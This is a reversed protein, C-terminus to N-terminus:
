GFLVFFLPMLLAVCVILPIWVSPRLGEASDNVNQDIRSAM